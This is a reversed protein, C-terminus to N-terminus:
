SAVFENRCGGRLGGRCTSPAVQKSKWGGKRGGALPPPIKDKM